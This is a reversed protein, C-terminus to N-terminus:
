IVKIIIIIEKNRINIFTFNLVIIIFGFIISKKRLHNNEKNLCKSWIIFTITNLILIYTIGHHKILILLVAYILMIVLLFESTVKTKM